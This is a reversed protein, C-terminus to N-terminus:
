DRYRFCCLGSGIAVAVCLRGVIVDESLMIGAWAMIMVAFAFATGSFPSKRRRVHESAKNLASDPSIESQPFGQFAAIGRRDGDIASSCLEYITQQKM